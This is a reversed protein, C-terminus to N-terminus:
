SVLTSFMFSYKYTEEHAVRFSVEVALLVPTKGPVDKTLCNKRYNVGGGRLSVVLM